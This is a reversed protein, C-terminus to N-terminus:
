YELATILWRHSCHLWHLKKENVRGYANRIQVWAGLSLENLNIDLQVRPVFVRTAYFLSVLWCVVPTFFSCDYVQSPM